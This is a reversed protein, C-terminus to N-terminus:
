KKEGQDKDSQFMPKASAMLVFLGLILLTAALVFAEKWPTFLGIVEAAIAGAVLVLGLRWWPFQFSGSGRANM